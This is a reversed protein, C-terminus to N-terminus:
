GQDIILFKARAGKKGCVLRVFYVGPKLGSLNLQMAIDAATATEAIVLRGRADFVLLRKDEAIFNVPWQVTVVSSVAPNPFVLLEHDEGEPEDTDVVVSCDVGRGALFQDIESSRKDLFSKLGPLHFWDGSINQRFAALEFDGSSDTAVWADTLASDAEIRPFLQDTDFYQRLVCYQELFQQRFQPVKLLRRILVPTLADPELPPADERWTLNYDWPLWHIKGDGGADRYLYYNRGANGYFDLNNVAYDLALVKLFSAVDFVAAISDAFVADPTNNLVDVFHLLSSWDNESEHNELEYQPYYNEQEPGLWELTYGASGHSNQKYLNGKHDGFHRDLFVNDVQEVIRYLGAYAGDFYVRAFAARPAPIGMNRLLEYCLNERLFSPDGARNHLNLKKLGQYTQGKKFRNLDLKMPKKPSSWWSNYGKHRIGITDLPTGDLEAKCYSYPIDRIQQQFFDFSLIYDSTLTDQLGDYLSTLHVTHVLNNDFISQGRAPLSLLMAAAIFCLTQKM